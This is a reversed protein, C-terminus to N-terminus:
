EGVRREESRDAGQMQRLATEVGVGAVFDAIEHQLRGHGGRAQKRLGFIAVAVPDCEGNFASKVSQRRTGDAGGTAGAAVPGYRLLSQQRNGVCSDTGITLLFLLFMISAVLSRTVKFFNGVSSSAFRAAPNSAPFVPASEM